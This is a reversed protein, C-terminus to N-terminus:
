SSPKRHGLHVITRGCRATIHVRADMKENAAMEMALVRQQALKLLAAKSMPKLVKLTLKGKFYVTAETPM